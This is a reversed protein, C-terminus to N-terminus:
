KEKKLSRGTTKKAIKRSSKVLPRPPVTKPKPEPKKEEVKPPEPETPEALLADLMDIMEGVVPNNRMTPNPNKKRWVKLEALRKRAKRHGIDNAWYDM